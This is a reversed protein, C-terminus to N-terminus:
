QRIPEVPSSSKCINCRQKTPPHSHTKYEQKDTQPGGNTKGKQPLKEPPTWSILVTLLNPSGSWSLLVKQGDIIITTPLMKSLNKGPITKALMEWRTTLLRSGKITRPAIEVPLCFEAMTQNVANELYKRNKIPMNEMRILAVPPLKGKPPLIPLVHEGVQLLGQEIFTDAKDTEEFFVQIFKVDARFKVGIAEEPLAAELHRGDLEKPMKSLDLFASTPDGAPPIRNSPPRNNTLNSQTNEWSFSEFVGQFKPTQTTELDKNDTDMSMNSSNDTNM